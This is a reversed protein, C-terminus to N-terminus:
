AVGIVACAVRGGANGTKLSDANGGEGLDDEGAHIMLARGIVSRPGVLTVLPDSIDVVATGTEDAFINGLDGVHRERHKPSGHNKQFKFYNIKFVSLM